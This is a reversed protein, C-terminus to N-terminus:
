FVEQNPWFKQDTVFKNKFHKEFPCDENDLCDNMRMCKEIQKVTPKPILQLHCITKDM